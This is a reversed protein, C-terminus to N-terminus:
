AGSAKADAAVGVALGGQRGCSSVLKILCLRWLSGAAALSVSSTKKHVAPEDQQNGTRVLTHLATGQRAAESGQGKAECRCPGSM